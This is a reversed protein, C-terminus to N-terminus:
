PHAQTKGNKTKRKKFPKQNQALENNGLINKFKAITKGYFKEGQGFTSQISSLM